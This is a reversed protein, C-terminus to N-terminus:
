QKTTNNDERGLGFQNFSRSICPTTYDHNEPSLCSCVSVVSVKFSQDPGQTIPLHLQAGSSVAARDGVKLRRQTIESLGDGVRSSLHKLGVALRREMGAAPPLTLALGKEFAGLRRNM